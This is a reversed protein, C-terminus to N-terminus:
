LVDRFYAEQETRTRVRGHGLDVQYYQMLDVGADIAQRGKAIMEKATRSESSMCYVPIKGKCEDVAIRCLEGVEEPSLAHGDGSGGSGLYVGIGADVMRRLHRRIGEENLNGDKDMPTSFAGFMTPKAPHVFGTKASM